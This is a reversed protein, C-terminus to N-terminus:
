GERANFGNFVDSSFQSQKSVKTKNNLLPSNIITLIGHLRNYLKARERWNQPM